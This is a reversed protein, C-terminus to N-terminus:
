RRVGYGRVIAGAVTQFATANRAAVPANFRYYTRHIVVTGSIVLVTPQVGGGGWGRGGGSGYRGHGERTGVRVCIM